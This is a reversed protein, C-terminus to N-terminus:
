VHQSDSYREVVVLEMAVLQGFASITVLLFWHTAATIGGLGEWERRAPYISTGNM